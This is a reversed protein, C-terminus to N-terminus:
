VTHVFDEKSLKAAEQESEISMEYCLKTIKPLYYSMKWADDLILIILSFKREWFDEVKMIIEMM